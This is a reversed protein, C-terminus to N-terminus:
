AEGKAKAIAARAIANLQYVATEIQSLRQLASDTMMGTVTGDAAVRAFLYGIDAQLSHLPVRLNEPLEDTLKSTFLLNSHETM